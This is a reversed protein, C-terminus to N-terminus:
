SQQDDLWNLYYSDEQRPELTGAEIAAELKAKLQGIERCPKLNFHKMIASGIGKNLPPPMNDLERLALVRKKITAVKFHVHRRKSRRKSTVDSRALDLVDILYEGMERDFRRIASDTCSQPLNAIRQHAAILFEIRKAEKFKYRRAIKRFMRAGVLDHGHFSVGDPGFKRTAPKGIDHFLAAWRVAPRPVTQKVVQVTHLWVDKHARDGVDNCSVLAELEPFWEALYGLEQLLRLKWDVDPGFLFSEMYEIIRGDKVYADIENRLDAEVERKM